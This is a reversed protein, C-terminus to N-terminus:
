RTAAKIDGRGGRRCGLVKHFFPFAVTVIFMAYNFKIFLPFCYYKFYKIFLMFDRLTKCIVKNAAKIFCSELLGYNLPNSIIIMRQLLNFCRVEINHYSGNIRVGLLPNPFAVLQNPKMYHLVILGILWSYNVLKCAGTWLKMEWKVAPSYTTTFM